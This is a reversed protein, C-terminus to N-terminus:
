SHSYVAPMERRPRGGGDLRNALRHLVGATGLRLRSPPPEPVVPSDPLASHSVLTSTGQVLAILGLEQM